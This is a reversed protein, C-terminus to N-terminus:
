AKKLVVASYSGGTGFSVALIYKMDSGSVTAESLSGSTMIHAKAESIKGSLLKAAFAAQMASAAARAEGM